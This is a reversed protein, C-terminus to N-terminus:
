GVIVVLDLDGAQGTGGGWAVSGFVDVYFRDGMPNEKRPCHRNVLRTLHVLIRDIEGKLKPDLEANAWSAMIEQQLRASSGYHAAPITEWRRETQLHRHYSHFASEDIIEQQSSFALMGGPLLCLNFDDVDTDSSPSRAEV